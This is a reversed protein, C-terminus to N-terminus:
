EFSYFTFMFADIRYTKAALVRIEMEKRLGCETVECSSTTHYGAGTGEGRVCPVRTDHVLFNNM